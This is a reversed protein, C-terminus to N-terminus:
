VHTLLHMRGQSSATLQEDEKVIDASYCMVTNYMSLKHYSLTHLYDSQGKDSDTPLIDLIKANFFDVHTKQALFPV